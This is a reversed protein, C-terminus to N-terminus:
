GAGRQPVNMARSRPQCVCSALFHAAAPIANGAALLGAALLPHHMMPRLLRCSRQKARITRRVTNEWRLPLDSPWNQAIEPLIAVANIAGEIAWAMGEGTFPEIYGLADGVALVRHGGARDRRRTLLGAGSFKQSAFTGCGLISTILHAPGGMDRCVAPDLAAALHIRADPLRVIGVYGGRGVHMHIAGSPIDFFEPPCTTAAGIWANRHIRWGAWSEAALSTGSIGDCALVVRTRITEAGLSISRFHDGASEPLLKAATNPLFTAGRSVAAVVLTADLDSRLIAFGGPAPIELQRNGAHWTVRDLQQCQRLASSLGSERLLEVASANLCGGCVKDRPWASKDVLLVQWGRDALLAAAVAGAPGAGIIVADWTKADHTV